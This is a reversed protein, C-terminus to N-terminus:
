RAPLFYTRNADASYIYVGKEGFAVSIRDTLIYREPSVPSDGQERMKEAIGPGVDEFSFGAMSVEVSRALNWYAEKPKGDRDVLGFGPVMGDSWCFAFAAEVRGNLAEAMRGYYEGHVRGDETGYETVWLTGPLVQQYARLLDDLTGVGWDPRPWEPEPRRGYPHIAYAVGLDGTLEALEWAYQMDGSALGAAVITCEGRVDRLMETCRRLFSAYLGVPMRWSSPSDLDPENGVQFADVPWKAYDELELPEGPDRFSERALVLLVRLGSYRLQVLAEAVRSDPRAVARVWRVHEFFDRHQVPDPLGHPNAPDINVGLATM